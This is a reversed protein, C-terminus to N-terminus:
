NLKSKLWYCTTDWKKHFQKQNHIPWKVREKANAHKTQTGPLTPTGESAIPYTKPSNVGRSNHIRSLTSKLTTRSPLQTIQGQNQFNSSEM